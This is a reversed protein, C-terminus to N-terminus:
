VCQIGANAQQTAVITDGIDVMKQLVFGNIPSVVNNQILKGGITANGSQLLNLKQQDLDLTNKDTNYLKVASIYAAYNTSIVQQALMQNFSDVSKRDSSLNDKDIQVSSIATALDAPAPNPKVLVLKEGITVQDGSDVYLKGVVGAVQSKIIISHKPIIDGVATAKQM